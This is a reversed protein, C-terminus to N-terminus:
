QEAELISLLLREVTGHYLMESSERGEYRMDVEVRYGQNARILDGIEDFAFRQKDNTEVCDVLEDYSIPFGHMGAAALLDDVPVWGGPQLRLGLEHPVHRLHKALYKSVSVM